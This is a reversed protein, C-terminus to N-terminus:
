LADAQAARFKAAESQARAAQYAADYGRAAEYLEPLSQAPAATHALCVVGFALVFPIPRLRLM